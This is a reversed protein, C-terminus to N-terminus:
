DIVGESWFAYWVTIKDPHLPKGKIIQPNKSCWIRCNQKNVYRVLRFHAEGSFFIKNSFFKRGGFRGDGNKYYTKVM